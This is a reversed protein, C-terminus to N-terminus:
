IDKILFQNEGVFWVPGREKINKLGEYSSPWSCESKEKLCNSAIMLDNAFSILYAESMFIAETAESKRVDFKKNKTLSFLFAGSDAVYDTEGKPIPVSVFGGINQGSATNILILLNKRERIDANSGKPSETTSRRYILNLQHKTFGDTTIFNVLKPLNYKPTSM